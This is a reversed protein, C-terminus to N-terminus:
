SDVTSPKNRSNEMSAAHQEPSTLSPTVVWLLESKGMPGLFELWVLDKKRYSCWLVYRGFHHLGRLYLSEKWPALESFLHFCLLWNNSEGWWNQWPFIPSEYCITPLGSPLSCLIPLQFRPLSLSLHFPSPDAPNLLSVNFVSILIFPQLPLHPAYPFLSPCSFFCLLSVIAEPVTRLYSPLTSTTTHISFCLFKLPDM